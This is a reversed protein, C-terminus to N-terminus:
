RGGGAGAAAPAPDRAGAAAFAEARERCKNCAGCHAGGLPAMCSLTLGLAPGPCRAIVQAKTAGRLPAEIRVSRGISASLLRGYDSLFAETADPFPNGALSGLAVSGIGRQAAWVAALGALVVNRGPIAVAEDPEDYGPARGAVAWHGAGLLGGGVTIVAVERVDLGSGALASRVSRLATLEAEEWSLGSRVYVPWVPGAAALMAMMAASDLGGSALAATM